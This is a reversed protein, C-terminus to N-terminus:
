HRDKARRRERNREETLHAIDAELEMQRERLSLAADLRHEALAEEKEERVSKLDKLSDKLGITHPIRYMRVRSAAEDM